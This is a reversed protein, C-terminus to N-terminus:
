KINRTENATARYVHRSASWAVEITAFSRFAPCSVHSGVPLGVDILDGEGRNAVFPIAHCEFHLTAARRQRLPRPPRHEDSTEHLHLM